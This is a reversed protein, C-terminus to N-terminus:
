SDNWEENFCDRLVQFVQPQVTERPLLILVEHLGLVVDIVKQLIGPLAEEEKEDLKENRLFSAIRPSNRTLVFAQDELEGSLPDIVGAYESKKNNAEVFTRQRALVGRMRLLKEVAEGLLYLIRRRELARFNAQSEPKSLM